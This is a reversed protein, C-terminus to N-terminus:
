HSSRELTSNAAGSAQVFLGVFFALTMTLVVQVQVSLSLYRVILTGYQDMLAADLQDTDAPWDATLDIDNIGVWIMYLTKEPDWQMGDALFHTPFLRTIQTTVDIM